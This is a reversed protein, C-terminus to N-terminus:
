LENLAVLKQASDTSHKEKSKCDNLMMGHVQEKLVYKRQKLQYSINIPPTLISHCSKESIEARHQAVPGVKCWNNSINYQRSLSNIGLRIRPLNFSINEYYM